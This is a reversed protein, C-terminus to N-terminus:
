ARQKSGRAPSGHELDADCEVTLCRQVLAPTERGYVRAKSGRQLASGARRATREEAQQAFTIKTSIPFVLTCWSIRRGPTQPARARVKGCVIRASGPCAVGRPPGRANRAVLSNAFRVFPQLFRTQPAAPMAGAVNGHSTVASRPSPRSRPAEETDRLSGYQMKHKASGVDAGSAAREGSSPCGKAAGRSASRVASAVVELRTLRANSCTLMPYIVYCVRRAARVREGAGCRVEGSQKCDGAPRAVM